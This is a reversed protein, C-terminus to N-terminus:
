IFKTIIKPIYGKFNFFGKNCFRWSFQDLERYLFKYDNSESLIYDLNEGVSPYLIYYDDKIDKIKDITLIECDISLTRIRELQDNLLDTKFKIVKDSLKIKRFENPNNILIIKNFKYKKLDTIEFSLNNEFIVLTKNNEIVPNVFDIQIIPYAKESVKPHVNENLKINQFRNNTFKKINWESALYHKGQTQIGAVWRWGLTNSAADGDYLHKLFFEAGLQWPLDLTFIWISAFWMRTHNHLYNYTKLESVWENFCEINTKGEIAQLYTQDDKYKERISELKITYDSWVSPRVELWGKWYVRWLVEQIFKEIKVFSHKKLSLKMVELESLVGHTIYPSLCSINGRQDPGFDFNRLKSYEILNKDIFNVLKKAAFDRNPEFM